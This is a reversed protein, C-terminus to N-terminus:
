AQGIAAAEERDGQEGAGPRAQLEPRRAVAEEADLEARRRQGTSVMPDLAGPRENLSDRGLRRDGRGRAAPDLGLAHRRVRAARRTAAWAGSRVSRATVGAPAPPRGGGRSGPPRAPGRARAAPARGSPAITADGHSRDPATFPTIRAPPLPVRSWGSVRIVFLCRSGM